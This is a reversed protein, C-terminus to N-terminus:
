VNGDGLRMSQYATGIMQKAEAPLAAYERDSQTRAKYSRMFNSSVVTNLEGSDMLAWEKLQNHSGVLRKLNDPLKSFETESGYCSNSLANKILNWAEYETMEQPSTLKGIYAKVLGIHPPYGKTDCAIVAKVAAAVLNVPEASFMDAWLCSAKYKDDDSYSKYFQPYAFSLIDMIQATEDLTM